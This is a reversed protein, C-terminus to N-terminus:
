PTAEQDIPQLIWALLILFPYAVLALRLPFNGLSLILLAVIGAWMLALDTRGLFDDEELQRGRQRLRRWLLGISGLLAILGCSGWEAAVELIENHANIFYPRHQKRYFPIGAERLAIKAHGFEARYAGHGVGLLPNEELMWFATRWGDLRGNLLQNYNGQRLQDGKLQVRQRLPSVLLLAALVAGGLAVGLRGLHRRPLVRAWFVASALLLGVIASLTRTLAIVYVFLAWTLAWLIRQWPVKSRWFGLQALLAPLVLYAALDFAGGALSTMAIRDQLDDRFQFLEVWNFYQLIGLFSLFVAPILLLRLGTALEKPRWGLSWAMLSLGAIWLSILGQTVHDRHESSLWTLSAVLLLPGVVQCAPHRWLVSWDLRQIKWLRSALYLLVVLALLETILLKPLRFTERAGSSFTLAPLILLLVCPVWGLLRRWPAAM